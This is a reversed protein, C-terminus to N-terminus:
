NTLDDAFPDEGTVLVAATGDNLHEAELEGSLVLEGETLGRGSAVTDWAESTANWVM